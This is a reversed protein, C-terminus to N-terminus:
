RAAARPPKLIARMAAPMPDHLVHDYLAHLLDGGDSKGDLFAAIRAEVSRPPMGSTDYRCRFDTNPSM